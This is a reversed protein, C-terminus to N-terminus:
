ATAHYALVGRNVAAMAQRATAACSPPPAAPTPSSASCTSWRGPGASSTAPRCRATSSHGSALVKALAEGRAWRYMPWVFGLDPERTLQWARARGRRGRLEAWLKLTADVADAVPAARCRPASTSERRAEYVVVSVAAALEAPALGDWVGAGCASPSWCTPRPGSGPWCGAPTPSRRRRRVPLRPRDLLACVRDFTRALSGTRSAVKSACRRPTASWGARPARGLPRAGGAGPLRPLPAPAARARLEALEHTRAPAAAPAAPRRRGAHRDLAPAASRRRGPRPPGAPRATTSTSPCGSGPWCRSRRRHLRGAAIRGAWRDETLVLPRPEGFGGAGPDLVVALGARRGSPVRIVDGVRLRELSTSRRRGASARRGAPGAGAGPRRDGGAARLVRRLRRPPLGGGRRVGRMTEVNRQVQRALGVM